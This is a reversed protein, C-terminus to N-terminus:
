RRMDRLERFLRGVPLGVVNNYDGEIGEIYRGCFGQIGYAGAKDMPDGTAVYERIEEGSMPAFHVVTREFFTRIQPVAEKEADARSGDKGLMTDGNQQKQKRAYYMLTVGTFVEHARGQLSELMRCAAAEDIPKGLVKGDLAVVTDAGIVCVEGEEPSPVVASAKLLSLHSVLDSPSVSPIHEDVEKTRVEYTLGIQSLLERRRPSSSALIIKLNRLKAEETAM